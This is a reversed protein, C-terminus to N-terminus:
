TDTSLFEKDKKVKKMTLYIMTYAFLGTAVWTVPYVYFISVFSGVWEFVTYIWVVRLFCTGVITAVTALMSRGLGRLVSNGMSMLGAIVYTSALVRLRILGWEVVAPNEPAFLALLPRAFILLVTGIVAMTAVLLSGCEFISKKIRKYNKAGYNQGVATIAAQCLAGSPVALYQDISRSAVNGAMAVKGFSNISSQIIVNSFSFMSDSIGAPIGIKLVRKLVSRDISLAKLDLSCPGDTRIMYIIILVAAVWFSSATAIGVGLAGMDFVLIMVANLIVNVVGGSTLFIMPRVSDGTSRLMAACYNYIVNAPAGFMYAIMYKAAEDLVEADTKM